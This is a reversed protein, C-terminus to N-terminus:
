LSAYKDVMAKLIDKGKYGLGAIDLLTLEPSVVKVGELIRCDSFVDRDPSYLKIIIMGDNSIDDSLVEILRDIDTRKIYLYAIDGRISYGTYLGAATYSTFACNINASESVDTIYQAADFSSNRKIKIEKIFLNEFPREWGVGNLLKNVDSISVLNDTKAVVNQSLLAQVIKHTWAYSINKILSLHRISTTKEKILAAIIQWSKESTLKVGSSPRYFTSNPINITGPIKIFDIDLSKVIYEVQPTIAKGVIIFHYNTNDRHYKRVIDRYLNLQAITSLNVNNKFEIVFKNFSDEILLDIEILSLENSIHYNSNFRASGSLSLKSRLFEYLPEYSSVQTEIM